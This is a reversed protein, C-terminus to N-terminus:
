RRAESVLWSRFSVIDAESARAKACVVFYAFDTVLSHSFPRVLRGSALHDLALANSALAIGQGDVAAQVVLAGDSFRAGKNVDIGKVGVARLWETWGPWKGVPPSWDTHILPMNRLDAPNKLAAGRRLLRPSCVPYIEDVFLRESFLGPYTGAGYRIGLDVGSRDFDVLEESAHLLVDLESHQEKFRQLRPVLWAAALSPVASVTLARQGCSAMKTVASSLEEFANRLDQLGALADVTLSYRGGHRRLLRRGLHDELIKVQQSVAAATM